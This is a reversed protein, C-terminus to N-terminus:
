LFSFAVSVGEGASFKDGPFVVHGVKVRRGIWEMTAKGVDADTVKGMIWPGETLRVLALIYPAEFGEPSVRVVTFTQIEGEGKLEAVELDEGGCQGCVKKPPISYANCRHCRLALLRNEKLAEIYQKYILAYQM